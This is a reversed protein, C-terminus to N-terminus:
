QQIDRCWDPAFGKALKEMEETALTYVMLNLWNNKDWKLLAIQSDDPSWTVMKYDGALLLQPTPNTQTIDLIYIGDTSGYVFTDSTRAMDMHGLWQTTPGYLTTTTYDSIELAMIYHLGNNSTQFALQSADSRWSIEGIGYGEPATYITEVAGGTAPVTQIVKSGDELNQKFAIVDGASSWAPTQLRVDQTLETPNSGQPEGNVVSVDIRWLDYTYDEQQMLFAIASGDPA